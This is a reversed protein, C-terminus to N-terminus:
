KQWAINEQNSLAQQRYSEEMRPISVFALVSAIAGILISTAIIEGPSFRIVPAPVPAPQAWCIGHQCNCEVHTKFHCPSHM